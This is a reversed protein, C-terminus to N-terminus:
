NIILKQITINKTDRIVISYIGIAFTNFNFNENESQLRGNFVKSGNSDYITIEAEDYNFKASKINFKGNNPNPYISIIADVTCTNKFTGLNTKTGDLDIQTLKYYVFGYTPLNVEYTYSMNHNGVSYVKKYSEFAEGDNSIFVEFYENDQESVVTWDITNKALNCKCSSGIFSVPLPTANFNTSALTFFFGRNQDSEIGSSPVFDVEFYALNTTNNFSSPSISTANTNFDGDEDVLLRLNALNNTGATPGPGIVISMDFELTVTGVTGSEQAKWHRQFITQLTEGNDTAISVVSGTNVTPGNNHGWVLSSNNRAISTPSTFNTGNAITLIDRYNGGNTNTSHSKLQNLISGDDKEIGAIDYAYGSNVAQNWIITSSSNLYDLSTGNSGLTTGYKIALYSEVRQSENTSQNNSYVVVEPITGEWFEDVGGPAGYVSFVNGLTGPLIDVDAANDEIGNHRLLSGNTGNLWKQNYTYVRDTTVTLGTHAYNLQGSFGDARDHWTHMRNGNIGIHPDDGDNSEGAALEGFGIATQWISISTTKGTFFVSGSSNNALLTNRELFDLGDSTGYNNFNNSADAVHFTPKNAAVTQNIHNGNGSVDNWQQIGGNNVAPTTGNDSYMNTPKYWGVLNPAIGGPGPSCIKVTRTGAAAATVTVIHNAGSVTIRTCIADLVNNVTAGPTMDFAVWFYNSGKLLQQNGTVDIDVGTALPPQNGFFTSASFITSSGTYFVDINDIDAIPSTSGDTRIRLETLSLPTCDDATIIELRIIPLNEFCKQADATSAQIFTNSTYTMGTPGAVWDSNDMGPDLVGDHTAKNDTLILGTTQDFKYYALLNTETAFTPIDCMNNAIESPTRVDNWIRVEDMNGLWFQAYGGTGDQALKTTNGNESDGTGNLNNSILFVGDQYLSVLGAGARSVTVAIHHWVGDNITSGSNIDRRNVGDGINFVWNAGTQFIVYGDLNGNSWDKDSIISPDSQGSTTKIWLEITFDSTGINFENQLNVFDSSGNFNLASNQGYINLLCCFLTALVLFHKKM